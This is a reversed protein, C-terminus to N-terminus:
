EQEEALFLLFVCANSTKNTILSTGAESQSSRTYQDTTGTLNTDIM